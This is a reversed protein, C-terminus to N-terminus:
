WAFSLLGSINGFYKHMQVICEVYMTREDNTSISTIRMTNIIYNLLSYKVFQTFQSSGCDLCAAGKLADEIKM